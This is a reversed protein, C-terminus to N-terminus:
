WKKFLIVELAIALGDEDAKKAIFDAKSKLEEMGNEMAIRYGSLEFLPLDNNGDGASIVQNKPIGLMNLLIKLAHRKTADRHTVHVDFCDSKWSHVKHTVINEIRQLKNMIEETNNKNLQEIFIIREPGKVVKEKPPASTEEDSFFVKCHYPQIVKLVIEVQTRSMDKEWLIKETVPNIIQTGGSIICPDTLQLKKIIVKSNFLPRGTAVCVKMEKKLKQIVDVLYQTPTGDERNPIATGDIDFILMKFKM